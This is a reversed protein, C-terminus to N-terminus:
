VTHQTTKITILVSFYLFPVFDIYPDEMNKVAQYVKVATGISHPSDTYTYV